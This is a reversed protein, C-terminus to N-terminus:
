VCGGVTQPRLTGPGQPEAREVALRTGVFVRARQGEQKQSRGVSHVSGKSLVPHVQDCGLHPAQPQALVPLNDCSSLSLAQSAAGGGREWAPSGRHNAPTMSIDASSLQPCIPLRAASSGRPASAKGIGLQPQPAAHVRAPLPPLFLGPIKVGRLLFAPAPLPLSSELTHGSFGVLGGRVSSVGWLSSPFDRDERPHCAPRGPVCCPGCGIDWHM